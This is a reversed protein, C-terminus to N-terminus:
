NMFEHTTMWGLVYSWAESKFISALTSWSRKRLVRNCIYSICIVSIASWCANWVAALQPAFLLPLSPRVRSYNSTSLPKSSLPAMKMSVQLWDPILPQWKFSLSGWQCRWFLNSAHIHSLDSLTVTSEATKCRQSKQWLSWHPHSTSIQWIVVLLM